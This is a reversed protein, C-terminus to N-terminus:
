PPIWRYREIDNFAGEYAYMVDNDKLIKCLANYDSQQMERLILRKTEIM